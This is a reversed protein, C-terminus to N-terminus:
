FKRYNLSLHLTPNTRYAVVLMIFLFDTELYRKSIFDTISQLFSNKTEDGFNTNFYSNLESKIPIGDPDLHSIVHLDSIHIIAKRM